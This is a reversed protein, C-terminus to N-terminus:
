KLPTLLPVVVVVIVVVVVVVAYYLQSFNLQDPTDVKGSLISLGRPGTETFDIFFSNETPGVAICSYSTEYM